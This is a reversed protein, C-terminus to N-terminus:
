AGAGNVDIVFGLPLYISIFIYIYIHICKYTHRRNLNPPLAMELGWVWVTMNSCLDLVNLAVGKWERARSTFPGTNPTPAWHDRFVFVMLVPMSMVCVSSM